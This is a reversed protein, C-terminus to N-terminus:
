WLAIVRFKTLTLLEEATQFDFHCDIIERLKTSTSYAAKDAKLFRAPRSFFNRSSEYSLGIKPPGFVYGATINVSLEVATEM